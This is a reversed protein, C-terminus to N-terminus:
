VLTFASDAFFLCYEDAASALIRIFIPNQMSFLDPKTHVFLALGAENVVQGIFM